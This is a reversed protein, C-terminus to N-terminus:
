RSSLRIRKQPLGAMSDRPIYSLVIQDEGKGMGGNAYELSMSDDDSMFVNRGIPRLETLRNDFDVSLVQSQGRIGATAGNEMLYDGRVAAVDQSAIHAARESPRVTVQTATSQQSYDQAFSPAAAAILTVIAAAFLSSQKFM